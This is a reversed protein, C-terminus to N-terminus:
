GRSTAYDVGQSVYGDQFMPEDLYGIDDVIVKSGANTLAEINNMFGVEGDDGTAFQLNAGPAIDHIDELMARGEDTGNGPGDQLVTVPNNPNLDGTSYSEELGGQYQNVSDSLAGITVGTGDLGLQSRAADASEATEAENYAEGQFGQFSSLIPYLIPSGSMTQPLRAITELEGVPVWGEVVAYTASTSTVQMGLSTLQSEFQNFDGGLNKIDMGVLGNHFEVTPFDAALQNTPTGTEYAKYISVVTTGLNALPGNQADFPNTDTPTWLPAPLSPAPPPTVSLLQRSELLEARPLANRRLNSQHRRRGPGAWLGTVKFNKMISKVSPEGTRERAGVRRYRYIVDFSQAWLPKSSKCVHACFM